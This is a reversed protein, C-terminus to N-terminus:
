PIRAPTTLFPKFITDSLGRTRLRCYRNRSFLVKHVTVEMTAGPDPRGTSDREVEPRRFRKRLKRRLSIVICFLHVSLLFLIAAIM